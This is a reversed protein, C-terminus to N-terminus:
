NKDLTASLTIESGPLITVQRTWDAHGPSHVRFQHNGSPIMLVSPTSGVMQGDLYIEAGAPDSQV